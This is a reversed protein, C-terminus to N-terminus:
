SPNRLRKCDIEVRVPQDQFRNYVAQRIVMAHYAPAQGDSPGDKRVVLDDGLGAFVARGNESTLHIEARDSRLVSDSPLGAFQLPFYVTAGADEPRPRVRGEQRMGSPRAFKGREPDFAVEIARGAGPNPSMRQELAFAPKWPMSTSALCLLGIAAALCRSLMTKRRFYQLLLVALVGVLALAFWLSEGVWVIGSFTTPGRANRFVAALAVVGLFVGVGGVVTETMNQTLTAFALMPLSLYLMLYLTRGIAAGLARNLPFGDALAQLADAAVSPGHVLLVFFLLKALILDRRKVPRVLWDQRVGPIADQHILAAILFGAGFVTMFIFLNLLSELTENEGHQDLTFRVAASAFQVAGVALVFRWLLKWDKKFIHWIM